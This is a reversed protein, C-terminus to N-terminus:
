NNNEDPPKRKDFIKNFMLYIGGIVLFINGFMIIMNGWETIIQAISSGGGIGIAIKGVTDASMEQVQDNINM